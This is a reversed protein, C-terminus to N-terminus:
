KVRTIAALYDGRIHRRSMGDGATAAADAMDMTRQM